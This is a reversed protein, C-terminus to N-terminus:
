FAASIFNSFANYFYISLLLTSFDDMILLSHVTFMLCPVWWQLPLNFASPSKSQRESKFNISICICISFSDFAAQSLNIAWRKRRVWLKLPTGKLYPLFFTPKSGMRHLYSSLYLCQHHGNGPIKTSWMSQSCHIQGRQHFRHMHGWQRYQM